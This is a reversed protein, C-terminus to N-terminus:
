RTYPTNSSIRKRTSAANEQAMRRRRECCRWSVPGGGVIGAAGCGGKEIARSCFRAGGGLTLPWAAFSIFRSLLENGGELLSPAPHPRLVLWRKRPDLAIAAKSYTM